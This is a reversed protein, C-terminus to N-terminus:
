SSANNVLGDGVLFPFGLIWASVIARSKKIYRVLVLNLSAPLFSLLCTQSKSYLKLLVDVNGSSGSDTAILLISIRM